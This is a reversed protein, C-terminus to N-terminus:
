DRWLVDKPITSRRERTEIKDLWWRLIRAAADNSSLARADKSYRETWAAEGSLLDPDFSLTEIPTPETVLTRGPLPPMSEWLSVLLESEKLTNVFRGRWALTLSPGASLMVLPSDPSNQQYVYNSIGLAPAAAQVIRAGELLAERLAYYAQRAGRAGAESNLYKEREQDFAMARQVRAARGELTEETPQGGLEQVRAEIVAATAAIGYRKLGIWLRTRPLWQPVSPKEDLPIFLAFDYGHDLARNRIATEEIRTFSTEGWGERYLVVVVRARSAFIENFAKEGDTGAIQEQKRSYVFTRLRGEFHDALGVALAEDQALFSFAADYQYDHKTAEGESM